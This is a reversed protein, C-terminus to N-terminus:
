GDESLITFLLMRLAWVKKGCYLTLEIIIGTLALTRRKTNRKTLCRKNRWLTGCENLAKWPCSTARKDRQELEWPGDNFNLYSSLSVVLNKNVEETTHEQRRVCERSISYFDGMLPSFFRTLVAIVETWLRQQAVAWGTLVVRCPFSLQALEEPHPESTFVPSWFM